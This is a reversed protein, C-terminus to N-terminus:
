YYPSRLFLLAKIRSSYSISDSASIWNSNSLFYFFKLLVSTSILSSMEETSSNFTSLSVCSSACSRFIKDLIGIKFNMSSFSISTRVTSFSFLKLVLWGFFARYWYWCQLLLELFSSGTAFCIDFYKVGSSLVDRFSPLTIPIYGLQKWWLRLKAKLANTQWVLCHKGQRTGEWEEFCSQSSPFSRSLVRWNANDFLRCLLFYNSPPYVVKVLISHWYRM